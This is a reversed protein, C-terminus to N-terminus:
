LFLFLAIVLPLQGPLYFMRLSIFIFSFIPFFFNVFNPFNSDMEKRKYNQILLNFSLPKIKVYKIFVVQVMNEKNFSVNKTNNNKM